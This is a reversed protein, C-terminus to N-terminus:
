RIRMKEKLIAEDFGVLKWNNPYKAFILLCRKTQPDPACVRNSDITQLAFAAQTRSPIQTQANLGARRAMQAMNDPAVAREALTEIIPSILDAAAVAAVQATFGNGMRSSAQEIAVERAIVMAQAKLARRDTYQDIARMDRSQLALVFKRIDDAAGYNTATACSTILIIPLLLLKKMATNQM